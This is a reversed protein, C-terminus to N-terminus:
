REEKKAEAGYVQRESRRASRASIIRIAGSRRTFIVAVLAGGMLGVIVYRLERVNRPSVSTYAAPDYFVERADGFDIGHKTLNTRRKSEDWEFEMSDSM